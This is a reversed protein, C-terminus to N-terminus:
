VHVSTYHVGVRVWDCGGVCVTRKEGGSTLYLGLSASGVSSTCTYDGNVSSATDIMLDSRHQHPIDQYVNFTATTTVATGNSYHWMPNNGDSRCSVVGSSGSTIITSSDEIFSNRPIFHGLLQPPGQASLAM